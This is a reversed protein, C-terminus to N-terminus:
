AFVGAAQLLLLIAAAMAATKGDYKKGLVQALLWLFFMWFARVAAIGSGTLARCLSLASQRVFVSAPVVGLSFDGADAPIGGDRDNYCSAGICKHHAHDREGSVTSKYGSGNREKRWACYGDHERSGKGSTHERTICVTSKKDSLPLAPNRGTREKGVSAERRDASM